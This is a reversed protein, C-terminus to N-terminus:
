SVAAYDDDEELVNPVAVGHSPVLTEEYDDIVQQAQQRQRLGAVVNDAEDYENEVQDVPVPGAKPIKSLAKGSAMGYINESATKQEFDGLRNYTDEEEDEQHMSNPEPPPPITPPARSKPQSMSHKKIGEYDEEHVNESEPRAHTKWSDKGPKEPTAYEDTVVAPQKVKTSTHFAGVVEDAESYTAGPPPVAVKTVNLLEPEDYINSDPVPIPAPLDFSKKGKLKEQNKSEKKQRKQKEKMEKAEKEKQEKQEKEQQKKLKAEAAKREKEQKKREKDSKKKEKGRLGMEQLDANSDTDGTSSVPEVEAGAHDNCSTEDAPDSQQFHLKSHLEHKFQSDLPATLGGATEYIKTDSSVKSAQKDKSSGCDKRSSISNRPAPKPAERRSGAPSTGGKQSVASGSNRSEKISMSTRSPAAVAPAEEPAHSVKPSPTFSESYDADGEPPPHASAAPQEAEEHVGAQARARQTYMSILDSLTSGEPTFFVFEGEGTSCRRGVEMRFINRTRGYKRIQRYPWEHISKSGGMELLRLSDQTPNLM